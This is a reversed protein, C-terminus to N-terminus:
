WNSTDIENYIMENISIGKMSPDNLGALSVKLENGEFFILISSLIWYKYIMWCRSDDINLSRINNMM